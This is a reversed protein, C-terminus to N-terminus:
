SPQEEKWDPMIYGDLAEIARGLARHNIKKGIWGSRSFYKGTRAAKDLDPMSWGIEFCRRRVEDLGPIGTLKYGVRKRRFGHYRAAQKINTWTSHPFAECIEKSSAAPYLKRLKSLEAGTWFHIPKTLGLKAAQARIAVHSRKRLAKRLAKYDPALRKVTEREQDTWLKQGAVEGARQIRARTRQAMVANRSHYALSM